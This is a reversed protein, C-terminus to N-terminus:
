VYISVMKILHSPGYVFKQEDNGILSWMFNLMSQGVPKQFYSKQFHHFVSFSSLLCQLMGNSYNLRRTPFGVIHNGYLDSM